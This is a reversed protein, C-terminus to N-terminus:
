AEMPTGMDTEAKRTLTFRMQSRFSRLGSEADLRYADSRRM